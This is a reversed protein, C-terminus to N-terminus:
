IGRLLLLLLPLPAPPPPLFLGWSFKRGGRAGDHDDNDPVEDVFTLRFRDLDLSDPIEEACCCAGVIIAPDRPSRGEFRGATVGPREKTPLPPLPPLPQAAPRLRRPLTHESAILRLECCPFPDPCCSSVSGVSLHAPPQPHRTHRFYSTRRHM